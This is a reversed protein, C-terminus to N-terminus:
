GQLERELCLIRDVVQEITMESSDIRIADEAQILPSIERHMDRDDRDEIDRRIRALDYPVGEREYERARRQARTKASATLYIKLPAHPLVTTGIDRGDMVLNERAALERQLKTLRDRVAPYVSSASAANGVEETRILHSVDEGNLLVEQRGDRHRLSVRCDRVGEAVASEDELNVGSRLLYLAIARYMAGTDVYIYGLKEALQRAITSKGAGAPGDIAINMGM